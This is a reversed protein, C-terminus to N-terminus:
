KLKTVRKNLISMCPCIGLHCHWSEDPKFQSLTTIPAHSMMKVCPNAVVSDLSEGWQSDKHHAPSPKACHDWEGMM